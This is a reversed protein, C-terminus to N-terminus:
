YTREIYRTKGEAPPLSALACPRIDCPAHLSDAMLKQLRAVATELNTSDIEVQITIRDLAGPRDVLIRFEGFEPGARRIVTHIASPFVNVGRVWLMDDARGLVEFRLSKRGCQCGDTGLIRIHDGSRYRVLPSAERFITTFVAEGSVGPGIRVPENTNVDILEMILEPAGVFHLGQRADCESAFQSLVESLGYNANMPTLGFLDRLQKQVEPIAAGPEGGFFGKKIGLEKPDLNYDDQLTRALHLPYSPTTHMATPRLIKALEIFTATAHVGIPVVTAGLKEGSLHDTVGGSYMSYNFVHFVIDEPRLGATWLARAGVEAIIAADHQTLATLLPKGTTGGTGHIRIIDTMPVAVYRGLPPYAAQEAALERKWLFPLHQLEELSRLADKPLRDAYFGNGRLRNLLGNLGELHRAELERMSLTELDPDWLLM